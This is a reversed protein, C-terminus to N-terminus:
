KNGAESTGWLFGAAYESMGKFSHGIGNVIELKWNFALRSDAALKASQDYLAKGRALRHPGQDMAPETQDLIGQDATNDLGGLLIVLRKKFGDGIDNQTFETRNLGYPYDIGDDPFTYTGANAAIATSIRADPSLMVMRQVFQGGASHGFIDYTTNTLQNQEVVHDFINEVVTFAWEDRPNIAGFFTFLNGEGYDNTTVQSFQSAFEPAVLLVNNTAAADVWVDLYDEANRGAGHMVLLIQDGSSWQPPKYTWVRITRKGKGRHAGIVFASKGEALPEPATKEPGKPLVYIYVYGAVALLSLLGLTLLIIKFLSKMTICGCKGGTIFEFASYDDV